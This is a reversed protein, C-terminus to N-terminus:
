RVLSYKRMYKNDFYKKKKNYNCSNINKHLSCNNIDIGGSYFCCVAFINEMIMRDTRNKVHQCMEIFNTKDNMMKLYDHSIISMIGFCGLWKNRDNSFNKIDKRKTIDSINDYFNNFVKEFEEDWSPNHINFYYFFKVKVESINVPVLSKIYTSDQIIIAVDFYKKYFFHYYPNIEGGRKILSQEVILKSDMTMLESIDIDSNDDIIVILILPYHKRISDICTKLRHYAYPGNVYSPIIFGFSSM